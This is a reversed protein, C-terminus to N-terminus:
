PEVDVHSPCLTRTLPAYHCALLEGNCHPIKSTVGIFELPQEWINVLHGKNYEGQKTYYKSNLKIHCKTKCM